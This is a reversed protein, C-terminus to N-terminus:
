RADGGSVHEYTSPAIQDRMKRLDSADIRVIRPGYRYARLEGKSIWSRVTSYGVGLIEAVQRPSYQDELPKSAKQRPRESYITTAVVLFGEKM